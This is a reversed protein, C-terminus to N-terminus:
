SPYKKGVAESLLELHTTKEQIQQEISTKEHNLQLVQKKLFQFDAKQSAFHSKFQNQTEELVLEPVKPLAETDLEVCNSLQKIEFQTNAITRKFKRMQYKLDETVSELEALKKRVSLKEM